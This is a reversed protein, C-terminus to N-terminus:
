RVRVLGNATAKYQATVITRNERLLHKIAFGDPLMQLTASLM